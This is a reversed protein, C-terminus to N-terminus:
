IHRHVARPARREAEATPGIRIIKGGRILALRDCIDRVFDMDHSVVIFTEEMEERAHPVLAQCRDEDNEQHLLGIYGKARGRNEIGPRTMDVWEDGIHINM